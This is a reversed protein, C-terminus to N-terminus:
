KTPTPTEDGRKFADMRAGAKALIDYHTPHMTGYPLGANKAFSVAWPGGFARVSIKLDENEARLREIEDRARSLVNIEAFSGVDCLEDIIDTM